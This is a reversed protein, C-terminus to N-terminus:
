CFIINDGPVKGYLSKLASSKVSQKAKYEYMYNSLAHAMCCKYMILQVFDFM